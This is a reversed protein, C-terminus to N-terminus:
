RKPWVSLFSRLKDRSSASEDALSDLFDALRDSKVITYVTLAIALSAILSFLSVRFAISAQTEDILNMGLFGTTATGILSLIAVVTLRVITKSTRRLMDSDLYQSMDHLEERVHAYLQATALHDSWKRFLDHPMAQDTVETFWYRYSFRMFIELTQRIETEFQRLSQPREIDLRSLIRVIRDSMMLLAARQFHALLGLLFYQHRFQALVGREADCFFPQRADGVVVFAHGCCMVRTNVWDDTRTPEHFRDYCYKSDYDKLFGSAYPTIAPDGAPLALGLRIYDNPTLELVKDVSIYAMIPM